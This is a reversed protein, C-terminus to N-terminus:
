VLVFYRLALIDTIRMDKPDMAVGWMAATGNTNIIPYDYTTTQYLRGTQSDYLMGGNSQSWVVYRAGVALEDAGVGAVDGAPQVGLSGIVTPSSGTGRSFSIVVQQESRQWAVGAPGAAIASIIEQGSVTAVAQRSANIQAGFAATRATDPRESYVTTHEPGSGSGPIPQPFLTDVAEITAAGGSVAASYTCTCQTGAADTVTAAWWVRGNALRPQVGIVAVHNRVDTATAHSVVHLAHTTRNYAYITWDIWEDANPGDHNQAWVIWSADGDAGSVLDSSEAASNQRLVTVAHTRVDLAIMALMPDQGDAAGARLSECLLQTGDVTLQMCEAIRGDPLWPDVVQLRSTLETPM